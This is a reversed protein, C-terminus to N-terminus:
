ARKCTMRTRDHVEQTVFTELHEGSSGAPPLLSPNIAWWSVASAKATVM